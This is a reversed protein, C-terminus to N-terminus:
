FCNRSRGPTAVFPYLATSWSTRAIKRAPTNVSLWPIPIGAVHNHGDRGLLSWLSKSDLNVMTLCFEEIELVFFFLRGGANQRHSKLRRKPAAAEIDCPRRDGFRSASRFPCAADSPMVRCLEMLPAWTSALANM